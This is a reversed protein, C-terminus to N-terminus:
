LTHLLCHLNNVYITGEQEELDQLHLDSYLPTSTEEISFPNDQPLHTFVQVEQSSHLDQELPVQLEVAEGDSGKLLKRADGKRDSKRYLYFM